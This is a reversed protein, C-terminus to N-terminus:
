SCPPPSCIECTVMFVERLPVSVTAHSRKEFYVYEDTVYVEDVEDVVQQEDSTFHWVYYTKTNGDVPDCTCITATTTKANATMVIGRGAEV